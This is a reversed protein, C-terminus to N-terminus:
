GPPTTTPPRWALRHGEGPRHRAAPARRRRSHRGPRGPLPGREAPAFNGITGGLFVVLRHGGAPSPTCTISSTAWWATSGSAPTSRPWPTAHRGSPPRTSRSPCSASWCGPRRSPTWCPAPRTRPERGSSSSRTPARPPLSPRAERELIERERETPYYEPLRTIQDFLECGVDDYFWKPPLEKPDATLGRRVDARLARDLDDPALHVDLTVTPSASRTM